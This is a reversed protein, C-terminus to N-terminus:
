QMQPVEVGNAKFLTILQEKVKAERTENALQDKIADFAPAEASAREDAVRFLYFKGEIEVPEATIQGKVLGQVGAPFQGMEAAPWWNGALGQEQAPLLKVLDTFMAGKKLLEQAQIAAERNDFEAFQLKLERTLERYKAHLDADSIVVNAKLHEVYKAAYVEAEMNQLMAKVEPQNNLGLKLAEQKLIEQQQLHSKIQGKLHDRDAAPMQQGPNMQEFQKVLADIRVEEIAPAAAVAVGVMCAMLIAAISTKKM